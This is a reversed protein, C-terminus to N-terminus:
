FTLDLLAFVKKGKNKKKKTNDIKGAKNLHLKCLM